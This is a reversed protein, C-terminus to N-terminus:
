ADVRKCEHPENSHPGVGSVVTQAGNIIFACWMGKRSVQVINKDINKVEYETSTAASVLDFYWVSKTVVNTVVYKPTGVQLKGVLAEEIVMVDTASAPEKGKLADACAPADARVPMPMPKIADILSELEATQVTLAELMSEFVSKASQSQQLLAALARPYAENYEAIREASKRQYDADLSAVIKALEAPSMQAEAATLDAKAADLKARAADVSGGMKALADNKFAVVSKTLDTDHDVYTMAKDISDICKALAAAATDYEATACAVAEKAAAVKQAATDNVAAIAAKHADDALVPPQPVSQSADEIANAEDLVTTSVNRLALVAKSATTIVSDM